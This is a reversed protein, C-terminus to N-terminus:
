PRTVSNLITSQEFGSGFLTVGPIWFFQGPLSPKWWRDGLRTQFRAVGGTHDAVTPERMPLIEDEGLPETKWPSPREKTERLSAGDSARPDGSPVGEPSALPTVVNEPWGYRRCIFSAAVLLAASAWVVVWAGKPITVPRHLREGIVVIPNAVGLLEKV